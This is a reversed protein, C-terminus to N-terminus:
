YFYYEEYNDINAVYDSEVMDMRNEMESNSANDCYQMLAAQYEHSPDANATTPQFFVVILAVAAAAVSSSLWMIKRIVGRKGRKEEQSIANAMLKSPDFDSPMVYPLQKGAIDFINNEM